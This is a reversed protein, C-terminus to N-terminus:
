SHCDQQLLFKDEKLLIQCLIDDGEIFFAEQRTEHNM